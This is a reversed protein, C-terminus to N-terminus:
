FYGNYRIVIIRGSSLKVCSGDDSVLRGVEESSLGNDNRFSGRRLVTEGLDEYSDFLNRIKDADIGLAIIEDADAKTIYHEYILHLLRVPYDCYEAHLDVISLDRKDMAQAMLDIKMTTAGKICDLPISFVMRCPYYKNTGSLTGLCERGYRNNIDPKTQFGEYFELVKEDLNIIYGYECFLSDLIFSQSDKFLVQKNNEIIRNYLEEINGIYDDEFDGLPMLNDYIKVMETISVHCCFNLINEGAGDYPYSDCHNYWLKDRGNLRFGIIGRTSM